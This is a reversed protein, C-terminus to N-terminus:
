IFLKCRNRGVKFHGGGLLREVFEVLLESLDDLAVTIVFRRIEGIDFFDNFGKLPIQLTDLQLM